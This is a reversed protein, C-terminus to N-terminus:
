SEAREGNMDTTLAAVIAAAARRPDEAELIARSVAAGVLAASAARAAARVQGANQPTIGGIALIPKDLGLRAIETLLAPGRPPVDPRTASAFMPGVGLYDAGAEAAARAEGASHTSAGILFRDGALRRAADVPLDTQGLHVGDAGSALAIDLRDNVIFLAGAATTLARLGRARTLLDRDPAGKERLQIMGAGSALAERATREPDHRCLASTLLLCLRVAGLRKLLPARVESATELEYAAYRLAKFQQGAAQTFLKGYEELARLAEQLRKLSAVRVDRADARRSESATADAAGVDRGADRAAALAESSVGLAQEAAALRHRLDKM